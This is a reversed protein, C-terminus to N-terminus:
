EEALISFIRIVSLTFLLLMIVASAICYPCIAHLIFTEVYTLYISYLLGILCIGFNLYVYKERLIGDRKELFLIAILIIYAGLGIFAIPIGMIMSYSSANVIDCSSSGGCYVETHTLKVLSLYFADIAGFISLITSYLWIKNTKIISKEMVVIAKSHSGDNSISPQYKVGLDKKLYLIM